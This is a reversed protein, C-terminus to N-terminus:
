FTHNFIDSKPFILEQNEMKQNFNDLVKFNRLLTSLQYPILTLNLIPDDIKDCLRPNEYKKCNTKCLDYLDNNQLTRCRVNIYINYHHSTYMQVSTTTNDLLNDVITSIWLLVLFIKRAVGSKEGISYDFIAYTQSFHLYFKSAHEGM